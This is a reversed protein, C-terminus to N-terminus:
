PDCPEVEVLVGESSTHFGGADLGGTHLGLPQTLALTVVVVGEAVSHVGVSAAAVLASGIM